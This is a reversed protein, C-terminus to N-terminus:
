CKWDLKKLPKELKPYNLLSHSKLFKRTKSFEQTRAISSPVIFGLLGDQRLHKFVRELFIASSNNSGKGDVDTQIIKYDYIENIIKKELDLLTNGYPPNGVVIDFGGDKIIDGFDFKWHFPNLREFQEVRIKEKKPLNENVKSM